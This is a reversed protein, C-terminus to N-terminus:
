GEGISAVFGAKRYFSVTRRPAPMTYLGPQYVDRRATAFAILRRIREPDTLLHDEGHGDRVVVSTVDQIPAGTGPREGLHCGRLGAVFAVAMICIRRVDGM